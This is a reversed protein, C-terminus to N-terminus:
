ISAFQPGLADERVEGRYRTLFLIDVPRNGEYRPDSYLPKTVSPGCEISILRSGGVDGHSAFLDQKLDNVIQLFPDQSDKFNRV